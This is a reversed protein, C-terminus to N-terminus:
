LIDYRYHSYSNNKEMLEYFREKISPHVKFTVTTKPNNVSAGLFHFIRKIDLESYSQVISVELDNKHHNTHYFM